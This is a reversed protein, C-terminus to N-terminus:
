NFANPSITTETSVLESQQTTATLCRTILKMLSVTKLTLEYSRSWRLLRQIDVGSQPYLETLLIAVRVELYELYKEPVDNLDRQYIVTAKETGSWSTYSKEELDYLYKVGSVTKIRTSYDDVEVSLAGTPVAIRGSGDATLEVEDETNFFWGRGQMETNTDRLLRVTESALSHSNLASVPPEGILRMIKNVEAIETVDVSTDTATSTRLKAADSLLEIKKYAPTQQFVVEQVGMM